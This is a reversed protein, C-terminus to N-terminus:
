SINPFFHIGRIRRVSRFSRTVRVEPSRLVETPEDSRIFASQNLPINVLRRRNLASFIGVQWAGATGKKDATNPAARGGVPFIPVDSLGRM